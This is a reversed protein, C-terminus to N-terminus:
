DTTEKRGKLDLIILIIGIIVFIGGGVVLILFTVMETIPFFMIFGVVVMGAGILSTLVEVIISFVKGKAM